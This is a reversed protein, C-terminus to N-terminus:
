KGAMLEIKNLWKERFADTSKRIPAIATVKV